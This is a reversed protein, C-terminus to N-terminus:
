ASGAHKGTERPGNRWVWKHRTCPSDFHTAGNLDLAPTARARRRLLLQHMQGLNLQSASVPAQLHIVLWINRWLGESGWWQDDRGLLWWLGFWFGTRRDFGTTPQSRTTAVLYPPTLYNPPAYQYLNLAELDSVGNELVSQQLERSWKFQFTELHVCRCWFGLCGTM